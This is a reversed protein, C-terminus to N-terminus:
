YNSRIRDSRATICYRSELERIRVPRRFTMPAQTDGEEPAEVILKCLHYLWISGELRSNYQVETYGPILVEPAVLNYPTVYAGTAAREPTPIQSAQPADIRRTFSDM